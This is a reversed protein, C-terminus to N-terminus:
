KSKLKRYAVIVCRIYTLLLLFFILLISWIDIKVNFLLVAIKTGIIFAIISIAPLVIFVIINFKKINEPPINKWM